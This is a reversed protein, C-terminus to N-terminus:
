LGGQLMALMAERAAPSQEDRGAADLEQLIRALSSNDNAMFAQPSMGGGMRGQGEAAKGKLAEAETLWQWAEGGDTDANFGRVTDILGSGDGLDVWDNKHIRASPFRQKFEQDAMLSNLGTPNPSYKGAMRMFDGQSNGGAPAGMPKSTPEQGRLMGVQASRKEDEYLDPM